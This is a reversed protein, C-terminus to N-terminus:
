PQDDRWWSGGSADDTRGPGVPHGGTTTPIGAVTGSDEEGQYWGAGADSTAEASVRGAHSYVPASIVSVMGDGQAPGEQEESGRGRRVGMRWRDFSSRLSALSVLVRWREVKSMDATMAARTADVDNWYTSVWDDTLSTPGFIGVDAHRALGVAADTGMLLAGENRTALVPIPSGMDAALDIVEHWGGAVRTSPPGTRRRQNRRRAKLGAIVATIAGIVAFPLLAVGGVTLVIGLIPSGGDDDHTSCDVAGASEGDTGGGAGKDSAAEASGAQDADAGSAAENGSNKADKGCPDVKNSDVDDEETPPITPPPPPPPEAQNKTQPTEQQPTPNQPDINTVPVWGRGEIAVEVWAAVDGGKIAIAESPDTHAKPVEFGMVVRAPIGLDRAMLAILPAYQEDDGLMVGGDEKVMDNLRGWHHGPRSPGAAVGGGRDDSSSGEENVKGVIVDRVRELASADAAADVWAEAKVKAAPLARVEPQREVKGAKGSGGAPPPLVVQMTYADGETLRLNSAGVGTSANYRFADRLQETRPGGFDISEAYGAGPFWVDTYKDVKVTVTRREGKDPHPIQEGIRQFWGSSESGDGVTFVQGDFGDMTALRVRESGKLGTVHFLVTDRDRTDTSTGEYRRFSSLPSPHNRPDFPPDTNKLVVRPRTGAGPITGGFVVAVVGALALVALAAPLRNARSAAVDVRRRTRRHMSVWGIAVVGFLAGQLLLSAPLPAGFLISLSLVAIPLVVAVPSWRTRRAITLSVVAATLGCMYPVVLLNDQVGVPRSATLLRAWGSIAGDVLAVVTAPTPVIGAIAKDPVAVAGGFLLFVGVTAATVVILPQRTRAGWLAVVMGLVIGVLGAVLYRSGGYASQFGYLGLAILAGLGGVDLWEARTPRPSQASGSGTSKRAATPPPATPAVPPPVVATM